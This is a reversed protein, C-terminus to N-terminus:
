VAVSKWRVPENASPCPFTTVDRDGTVRLNNFAKRCSYKCFRSRAKSQPTFWTGCYACRRIEYGDGNARLTWEVLGERLMSVFLETSVTFYEGNTENSGLKTALRRDCRADCPQQAPSHMADHYLPAAGVHAEIPDAHRAARRYATSRARTSSDILSRISPCVMQTRDGWQNGGM